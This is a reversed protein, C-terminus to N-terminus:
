PAHGTSCSTSSAAGRAVKTVPRLATYLGVAVADFVHTRKAAPVHELRDGVHRSLAAEVLAYDCAKGPPVDPLIAHQWDKATVEVLEAGSEVALMGLAGWVLLQGMVANITGHSLAQEGAITTCGYRGRLRSLVGSLTHIRRARDTSKDLAKDPTSKWLGLDRVRATRPDVIAWGCFAIGPDVALIM